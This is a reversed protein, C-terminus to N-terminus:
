ANAAKEIQASAPGLATFADDVIEFTRQLDADTHATSVFHNHYSLLYVGRQVCKDVWMQHTKGNVNALRYYPMAPVGTAVLDYGHSAAIDVLGDNLNNGINTM